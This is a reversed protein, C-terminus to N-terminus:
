KQIYVNYHTTTVNEYYIKNPRNLKIEISVAMKWMSWIQARNHTPLNPKPKKKILILLEVFVNIRNCKKSIQM